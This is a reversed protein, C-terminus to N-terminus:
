RAVYVVIMVAVYIAAITAVWVVVDRRSFPGPRNGVGALSRNCSPCRMDSAAVPIGCLPCVEVAPLGPARDTESALENPDHSEDPEPIPEPVGSV